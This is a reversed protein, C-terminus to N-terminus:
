APMPTLLSRRGLRVVSGPGGPGEGEGEGVRQPAAGAARWPEHM